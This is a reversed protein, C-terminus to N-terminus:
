ANRRRRQVTFAAGGLALATLPLLVSLPAEPVEAPPAAPFVKTFDVNMLLYQGREVQAAANSLGAGTHVQADFLFTNAGFAAPAPIIGSSEEDNTLFGPDGPVFRNDFTAIPALQKTAIDYAWIRAVYNNGGPDEQMLVHGSSDITMNDPMFMAGTGTGETGDLLLTLTGGLSPNTRDTFSMKWLGGKGGKALQAATQSNGTTLFYYDNPNSPDWAGDETRDMQIGGKGVIETQIAAGTTATIATTPAWPQPSNKGFATRFAADTAAGTVVIGFKQGGTLGAKDYKSGTNKKTGVYFYNTNQGATSTDNNAMALTVDSTSTDALVLTEWSMQGLDTLVKMDGAVPDAAVAVGPLGNEEGTLFLRGNFGNGSVTNFLQNPGSLDGSCFRAFARATGGSWDVSAPSTVLDASGSVALTGPDITHRSIFAGAFGSGRVIGATSGLEHNSILTVGGSGNPFAGLGDPIGAVVYGAGPAPDDVTLLSTIQVKTADIPMVYPDTTTSPGKATGPAAAGALGAGLAITTGFALAVASRKRPKNSM